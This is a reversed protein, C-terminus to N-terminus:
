LSLAQGGGGSSFMSDQLPFRYGQPIKHSIDTIIVMLHKGIQELSDLEWETSNKNSIM